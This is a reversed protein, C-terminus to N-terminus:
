GAAQLADPRPLTFTATVGAEPNNDLWLRGGHLKIIASSLSLGLGLGHDKTTFFPQLVRDQHAPM